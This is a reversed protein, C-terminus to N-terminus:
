ARSTPELLRFTMTPVQNAQALITVAADRPVLESMATASEEAADVDRLRSLSAMLNASETTTKDSHGHGGDAVSKIRLRSERAFKGAIDRDGSGIARFGRALKQFSAELREPPGNLSQGAEKAGLNHRVPIGM